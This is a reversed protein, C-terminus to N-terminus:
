NIQSMQDFHGNENRTVSKYNQRRKGVPRNDNKAFVRITRFVFYLFNDIKRVCFIFFGGFELYVFM